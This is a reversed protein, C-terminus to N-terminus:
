RGYRYSSYFCTDTEYDKEKRNFLLNQELARQKEQQLSLLM